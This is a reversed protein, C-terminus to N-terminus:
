LACMPPCSHSMYNLSVLGRQQQQPQQRQQQQQHRGNAISEEVNASTRLSSLRTKDLLQLNQFTSQKTLSLFTIAILICVLKASFCM